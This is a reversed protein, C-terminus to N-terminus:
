GPGPPSDESPSTDDSSNWRRAFPAPRSSDGAATGAPQATRETEGPPRTPAVPDPRRRALLALAVLFIAVLSAVLTWDSATLGWIGVTASSGSLTFNVPVVLALGVLTFSGTSRVSYGPVSAVTYAYTGNPEAFTVLATASSHNVTGVSVSWDTAVPLGSEEFSVTFSEPRVLSFSITVTVVAGLLNVTGTAPSPAYGGVSPVYYPYSGNTANVVLSMGDTVLTAGAFEVSWSTGTPLGTEAFRVPYGPGFVVDVTTASGDITLTGASTTPVEDGVPAVTYNFTGNPADFFVEDYPSDHVTGNLAVTWETGPALGRELFTLVYMTEFYQVDVTQGAGQIRFDVTAEQPHYSSDLSAFVIQYTGNGLRFQMSSGTTQNFVSTGPGTLTASWALGRPLGAEGILLTYLQQVFRVTLNVGGGAVDFSGRAPAGSYGATSGASLLYPFSGNPSEFTLTTTNSFWTTGNVDVSWNWGVPLGSEAFTVPYSPPHSVNGPDIVTITGFQPDAIYVDGTTPDAVVFESGGPIDFSGLVGDTAGSVITANGNTNVVWMEGTVPDYASDIPFNGAAIDAVPTNTSADLVTVNGQTEAGFVQDSARDFAMLLPAEPLSVTTTVTHTTGSIVSINSSGENAVFISDQESDFALGVPAYGVPITQVVSDTLDSIRSVEGGFEDSVYVDGTQNDVVVDIPDPGVPINAVVSNNADQIVSVNGPAPGSYLSNPGTAFVQDTSSDYDLLEPDLSLPISTLVRNTSPSVVDVEGPEPVAVYLDGNNTDYVMGLPEADLSFTGVVRDTPESIVSVNNSEANSVYVEGAAANYTAAFPVSGTSITALVSQNELDIVGVIGSPPGLAFIRSTGPIPTLVGYTSGVSFQTTVTGTEPSIVSLNDSSSTAYLDGTDSDYALSGASFGLAFNGISADTATSIVTLNDTLEDNTFLEGSANDYAMSDPYQGVPVQAVVSDNVTSIVTVASTAGSLAFLESLNAVFDLALPFCGCLISGNVSDTTDNILAIGGAALGVFVTGSAPDYALSSPQPLNPLTRLVSGDSVNVVSVSSSDRDATFLQGTGNDFVVSVPYQATTAYFDGPELSNNSLVLTDV